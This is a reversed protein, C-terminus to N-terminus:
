LYACAIELAVRTGRGPHATVRLNGNVLRVREEMGIFGLGGQGKATDVHFGIGDDAVLLILKGKRMTLAVRVRTARTNRLM